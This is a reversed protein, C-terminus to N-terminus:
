GSLYRTSIPFETRWTRSRTIQWDNETTTYMLFNKKELNQKEVEIESDINEESESETEQESATPNAEDNSVKRTNHQKATPNFREKPKSREAPYYEHTGLYTRGDNGNTNAQIIDTLVQLQLLQNNTPQSNSTLNDQRADQSQNRWNPHNNNQSHRNNNGNQSFERRNNGGTQNRNANPCNPRIHGAEGCGYCVPGNDVTQNNWRNNYNSQNSRSTRGAEITEIKRTLTQIANLVEDNALMVTPHVQFHSKIEIDAEA